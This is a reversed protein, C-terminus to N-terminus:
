LEVTFREGVMGIKNDKDQLKLNLESMRATFKHSHEDNTIFRTGGVNRLDVGARKMSRYLPCDWNDSYKGELDKETLECEYIM